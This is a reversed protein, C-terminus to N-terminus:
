NVVRLTMQRACHRIYCIEVLKESKVKYIIRYKNRGALLFRYGEYAKEMPTGMRPFTQLMEVKYIIEDQIKEPLALLDKEARPLFKVQIKM